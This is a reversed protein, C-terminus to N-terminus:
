PTKFSGAATIQRRPSEAFSFLSEMLLDGGQSPSFNKLRFNFNRLTVNQESGEFSLVAEANRIDLLTINPLKNLFTFDTKKKGLRFTLKPKELILTDIHGKLLLNLSNNATVNDCILTLGSGEPGSIKVNKASGSLFPSFSVSEATVDYGFLDQWRAM